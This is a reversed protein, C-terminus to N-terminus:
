GRVRHLFARFAEPSLLLAGGDPDKSDRAAVRDTGFAVEVCDGNNASHSSKIWQTARLDQAPM